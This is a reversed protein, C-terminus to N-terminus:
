ATDAGGTNSAARIRRVKHAIWVIGLGNLIWTGTFVVISNSDFPFGLAVHTILM